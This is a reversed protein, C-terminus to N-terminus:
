LQSSWEDLYGLEPHYMRGVTKQDWEQTGKQFYIRSLRPRDSDMQPIAQALMSGPLQYYNAVPIPVFVILFEEAVLHLIFEYDAWYDLDRDKTFGGISLAAPADVLALADIYNDVSLRLTPVENSRLGVISNRHIDFLNGYVLAASTEVMSRYLTPISEAILQNDADLFFVRRFRSLRLGLNRVACLGINEPLFVTAVDNWECNSELTSLLRQSGDRSDDDIVIVEAPVDIEGLRAVTRRASQISRPLFRRHNWNPIVISVGDRKAGEAIELPTHTLTQWSCM